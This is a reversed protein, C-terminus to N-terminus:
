TAKGDGYAAALYDVIKPVDGPEIPAGYASIMKKVEADWFSRGFASGRPQTVIYEASHCALCNAEAIEKGPRDAFAASEAPPDYPIMNANKSYGASAVTAAVTLGLLWRGARVVPDPHSSM